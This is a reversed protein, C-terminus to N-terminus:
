VSTSFSINTLSHYGSAGEIWQVTGDAIVDIRGNGPPDGCVTNFLCRNPPRFGTPLVFMAAATKSGGNILGQLQVIDGVKRYRVLQYSAYQVWGNIFTPTTWATPILLTDAVELADVQSQLSIDVAELADIQTQLSADVVELGDIQTQLSADNDQLYGIEIPGANVVSVARGPAAVIVRQNIVTPTTQQPM